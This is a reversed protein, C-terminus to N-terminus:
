FYLFQSPDWKVPSTTIVSCVLSYLGTILSMSPMWMCLRLVSPFQAKPLSSSIIQCGLWGLLHASGFSLHRIVLKCLGPPTHSPSSKVGTYILVDINKTFIILPLLCIFINELFTEFMKELSTSKDHSPILLVPYITWCYFCVYWSFIFGGVGM